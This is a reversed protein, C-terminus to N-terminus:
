CRLIFVHIPSSNQFTCVSASPPCCFRTPLVAPLSSKSVLPKAHSGKERNMAFWLRRGSVKRTDRLVKHLGTWSARSKRTSKHERLGQTSCWLGGPVRFAVTWVSLALLMLQEKEERSVLLIVLPIWGERSHPLLFLCFGVPCIDSLLDM